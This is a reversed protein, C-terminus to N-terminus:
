GGSVRARAFLSRPLVQPAAGAALRIRHRKAPESKLTSRSVVHQHIM